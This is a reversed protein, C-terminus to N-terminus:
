PLTLQMDLDRYCFELPAKAYLDVKLKRPNWITLRDRDGGLRVAPVLFLATAM